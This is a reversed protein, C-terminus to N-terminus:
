NQDFMRTIMLDLVHESSGGQGRNWTVEWKGMEQGWQYTGAINRGTVLKMNISVKNLIVQMAELAM